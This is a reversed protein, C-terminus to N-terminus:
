SAFRGIKTPDFVCDKLTATKAELVSVDLTDNDQSILGQLTMTERIEIGEVTDHILINSFSTPATYIEIAHAYFSEAPLTRYKNDHVESNTFTMARRIAVLDCFDFDARDVVATGTDAPSNGLGVFGWRYFKCDYAEFDGAPWITFGPFSSQSVLTGTYSRVEGVVLQCGEISYTGETGTYSRGFVASSNDTITFSYFVETSGSNFLLFKGTESFHGENGVGTLGNGIDLACKINAFVDSAQVVGLPRPNGVGTGRPGNTNACYEVLDSVGVPVSPTGDTVTIKNGHHWFDMQLDNDGTSGAFQIVLQVQIINSFVSPTGVTADANSGSCRLAQWGFPLTSNGGFWFEFYAAPSTSTYLRIAVTSDTDTLVTAKGKVVFFWMWCDESSLSFQEGGTPSYTFTGEGAGSADLALSGTGEIYIDPDNELVVSGVGGGTWGTTADCANITTYNDSFDAM